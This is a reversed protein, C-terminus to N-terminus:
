RKPDRCARISEINQWILADQEIINILSVRRENSLYKDFKPRYLVEIFELLTESSVVLRGAEFAKTLAVANVSNKILAASILSNTDFVFYKNKM